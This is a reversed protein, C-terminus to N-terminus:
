WSFNTSAAAACSASPEGDQDVALLDPVDLREVHLVALGDGGDLMEPSWAGSCSPVVERTSHDEGREALSEQGSGPGALL